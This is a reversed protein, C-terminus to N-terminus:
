RAPKGPDVIRVPAAAAEDATGATGRRRTFRTPPEVAAENVLADSHGCSVCRRRREGADDEIVIRDVARCEPCVAGAIFRRSPRSASM